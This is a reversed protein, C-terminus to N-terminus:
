DTTKDISFNFYNLRNLGGHNLCETTIVTSQPLAM